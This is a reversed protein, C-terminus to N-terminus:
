LNVCVVHQVYYPLGHRYTSTWDFWSLRASFLIRILCKFFPHALSECCCALLLRVLFVLLLLLKCCKKGRQNETIILPLSTSQGVEDNQNQNIAVM